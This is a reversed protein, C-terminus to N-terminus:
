LNLAADLPPASKARRALHFIFGGISSLMVAVFGLMLFIAGNAGEAAKSSPDGMCVTCAHASTAAFFALGSALRTISKTLPRM